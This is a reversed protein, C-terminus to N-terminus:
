ALIRRGRSAPLGVRDALEEPCRSELRADTKIGIFDHRVSGSLAVLLSPQISM